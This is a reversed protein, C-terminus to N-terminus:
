CHRTEATLHFTQAVSGPRLVEVCTRGKGLDTAPLQDGMTGPKDGHNVKDGLGLQGAERATWARFWVGQVTGYIRVRASLNATAGMPKVRM